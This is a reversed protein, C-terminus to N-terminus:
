TFVYINEDKNGQKAYYRQMIIKLMEWRTEPARVLCFKHVFFLKKHVCFNEEENYTEDQDRHENTSSYTVPVSRILRGSCFFTKGSTLTTFTIAAGLWPIHVQIGFIGCGMARRMMVIIILVALRMIKM